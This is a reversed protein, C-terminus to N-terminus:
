LPKKVRFSSVMLLSLFILIIPNEYYLINIEYINRFKIDLILKLAVIMGAITIPLGKLYGDDESINFRALRFIASGVFFMASLIELVKFGEISMSGWLVVPAIGFSVLDCLSDLEKGFESISNLKRAAYGDLKDTLGAFLILKSAIKFNNTGGLISIFIAGLGLLMNIYTISNPLMYKISFTKHKEELM